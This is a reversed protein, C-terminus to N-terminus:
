RDNAAQLVAVVMANSCAALRQAADEVTPGRGDLFTEVASLSVAVLDDALAAVWSAPLANLGATGYKALLQQALDTGLGRALRHMVGNLALPDSRYRLFLQFIPRHRTVLDFMERYGQELDEGAAPGTEFMRRRNAAVTQRIENTVREAAEALCEEVSAFHQYFLSQVVGSARTVSVTSVASEGREHLLDLAAQM